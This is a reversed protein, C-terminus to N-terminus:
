SVLNTNQLVSSSRLKTSPFIRKLWGFMVVDTKTKWKSQYKHQANEYTIFIHWTLHAKVFKKKDNKKREKKWEWEQQQFTSILQSTKWKQAYVEEWKKISFIKAIRMRLKRMKMDIMDSLTKKCKILYISIHKIHSVLIYSKKWDFYIQKIKSHKSSKNSKNSKLQCVHPIKPQIISSNKKQSSSASNTFFVLKQLIM